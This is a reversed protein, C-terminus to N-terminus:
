PRSGGLKAKARQIREWLEPNEISLPIAKGEFEREAEALNEDV